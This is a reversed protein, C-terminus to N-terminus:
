IVLPRVHSANSMKSARKRKPSILAPKMAIHRQKACILHVAQSERLDVGDNSTFILRRRKGTIYCIQSRGSVRCHLFFQEWLAFCLRVFPSVEFDACMSKQVHIYTHANRVISSYEEAEQRTVTSGRCRERSQNPSSQEIQYASANAFIINDQTNRNM